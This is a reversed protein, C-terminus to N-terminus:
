PAPRGILDAGREPPGFDDALPRGEMRLKGAQRALELERHVAGLSIARRDGHVVDPQVGDLVFVAIDAEPDEDAAPQAAGWHDAYANALEQGPLMQQAVDLCDQPDVVAVPAAVVDVLRADLDQHLLAAGLAEARFDLGFPRM